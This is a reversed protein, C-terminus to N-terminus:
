LGEYVGGAGPAGQGQGPRLRVAGRLATDWDPNWIGPWIASDLQPHYGMVRLPQVKGGLLKHRHGQRNIAMNMAQRVRKKVFPVKPDLKDPTAFYM